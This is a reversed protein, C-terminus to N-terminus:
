KKCQSLLERNPDFPWWDHALAERLRGVNGENELEATKVTIFDGTKVMDGWNKINTDISRGPNIAEGNGLNQLIEPTCMQFYSYVTHEDSRFFRPGKVGWVWVGQYWTKSVGMLIGSYLSKVKTEFLLKSKAKQEEPLKEISRKAELYYKGGWSFYLLFSLVLLPLLVFFSIKIIRVFM